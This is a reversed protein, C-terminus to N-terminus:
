RTVIRVVIDAMSRGIGDGRIHLLNYRPPDGSERPLLELVYEDRSMGRQEVENALVYRQQGGIPTLGVPTIEVPQQALVACSLSLFSLVLVQRLFKSVTNSKM